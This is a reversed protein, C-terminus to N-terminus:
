VRSSTPAESQTAPGRSANHGMLSKTPATAVHLRLDLGAAFRGGTQAMSIRAPQLGSGWVSGITPKQAKARVLEGRAAGPPLAGLCSDQRFTSGPRKRFNAREGQRGICAPMLPPARLHAHRFRTNPTSEFLSKSVGGDPNERLPNGRLPANEAWTPNSVMVTSIHAPHVPTRRFSGM